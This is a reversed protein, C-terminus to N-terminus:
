RSIAGIGSIDITDSHGGPTTLIITGPEAVNGSGTAFIIEHVGRITTDPPYEVVVDQVSDRGAFSDGEFLVFSSTTIEVGHSPARACQSALCVHAMSQARAHMLLMVLTSSTDRFRVSAQIATSNGALLASCIAFLAIVVVVEALTFGRSVFV